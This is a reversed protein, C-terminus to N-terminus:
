VTAPFVTSQVESARICSWSQNSHPDCLGIISRRLSSPYQKIQAVCVNSHSCPLPMRNSLAMSVRPFCCIVIRQALDRVLGASRSSPLPISQTGADNCRLAQISSSASILKLSDHHRYEELYERVSCRPARERIYAAAQVLALSMHDLTTALTTISDDEEHVDGLKRRLLAYAATDHM